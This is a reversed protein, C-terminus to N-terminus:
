RCRWAAPWSRASSASCGTLATAWGSRWGTAAASAPRACGGAVRSASDELERFTLRPGDVEVVAEGGPAREVSTRLMAVVSDPLDTYHKVGAADREVGSEDFPHTVM